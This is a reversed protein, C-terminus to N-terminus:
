NIAPLMELLKMIKKVANRTENYGTNYITHETDNWPCEWKRPSNGNLCSTMGSCSVSKQCAKNGGNYAAAINRVNTGCYKKSENFYALALCINKEEHAPNKLWDCTIKETVGCAGKLADATSPLFQLPGCAHEPVASSEANNRCGSEEIIKAKLFKRSLSDPQYKVIYKDFRDCNASSGPIPISPDPDNKCSGTINDGIIAAQQLSKINSTSGNETEPNYGGAGQDLNVIDASAGLNLNFDLLNPNIFRLLMFSFFAFLLGYFINTISSIAMAKGFPTGQLMYNIGYFTIMIVAGATILSIVLKIVTNVFTNLNFTQDIKKPFLPLPALLCYESKPDAVTCEGKQPTVQTGEQAQIPQNQALSIKIFSLFVLFIFFVSITIIKKTFANKM